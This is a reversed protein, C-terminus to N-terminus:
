FSFTGISLPLRALNPQVDIVLEALGAGRLAANM